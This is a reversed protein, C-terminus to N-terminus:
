LDSVAKLRAIEKAMEKGESSTSYERRIREYIDLAQKPNNTLEYAFAAKKLYFPTTFNNKSNEAAKLFYKIAEEVQNLEMYADGTAGIAVSSIVEDNGSYKKLYEIAQEFKGTRLYCIGAYYNALNGSKTLSYDQAIQEFGAMPKQGDPTMIMPGGKLALNFSDREFFNEAMYMENAAEKEQEPLYFLKFYTLAAALILIGGGLYNVLKKNKEYLLQFGELSPDISRKPAEAQEEATNTETNEVPNEEKLDTM